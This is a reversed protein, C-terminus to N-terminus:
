GAARSEAMDKLRALARRNRRDIAWDTIAGPLLSIPGSVPEERMVVRTGDGEPILRLDISAVGTPRVRAELLLRSPEECQKVETTDRIFLPGVGVTHHIRAGPAPWGADVDRIHKAGVVWEGYSRGDALVAFVVDPAAGVLAETVAM